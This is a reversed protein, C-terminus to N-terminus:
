KGSFAPRRKERFARGGEEQDQACRDDSQNFRIFAGKLGAVVGGSLANLQGPRNIIITAILDKSEYLALDDTM